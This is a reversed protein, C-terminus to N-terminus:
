CKRKYHSRPLIKIFVVLLYRIIKIQITNKLTETMMIKIEVVNVATALVALPAGHIGVVVEMIMAGHIKIELTDIEANTWQGLTVAMGAAAVDVEIIAVVIVLRVETEAVLHRGKLDLEM